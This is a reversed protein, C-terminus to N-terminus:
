LIKALEKIQDLTIYEGREIGIENLKNELEDDIYDYDFIFEKADSGGILNIVQSENENKFVIRGYNILSEYDFVFGCKKVEKITNSLKDEVDNIIDNLNKLDHLECANYNANLTTIIRFKEESLICSIYCYDNYIINDYDELQKFKGSDLLPQIKKMAFEEIRKLSKDVQEDCDYGHNDNDDHDLDNIIKSNPYVEKLDSIIQEDTMNKGNRLGYIFYISNVKDVRHALIVDQGGNMKSIEQFQEVEPRHQLSLTKDIKKDDLYRQLCISHVSDEYVEGNIYVIALDRNDWDHESKKILRKM